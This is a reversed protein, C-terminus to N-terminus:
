LTGDFLFQQGEAVVFRGAGAATPPGALPQHQSVRAARQVARCLARRAVAAAGGRGGLQEALAKALQLGLSRIESIVLERPLGVGTDEVVLCLGGDSSQSLEITV